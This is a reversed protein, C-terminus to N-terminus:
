VCLQVSHFLGEHGVGRQRLRHKTDFPSPGDTYGEDPDDMREEWDYLGEDGKGVGLYWIVVFPTRCRLPLCAIATEGNSFV